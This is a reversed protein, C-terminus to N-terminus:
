SKFTTLRCCCRGTRRGLVHLHFAPNTPPRGPEWGNHFPRPSIPELPSVELSPSPFFPNGLWPPKPLRISPLLLRLALCNMRARPKASLTETAKRFRNKVPRRIEPHIKPKARSIAREPASSVAKSAAPRRAKGKPPDSPRAPCINSLRTPRLHECDDSRQTM